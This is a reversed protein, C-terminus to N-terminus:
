FGCLSNEAYADDVFTICTEGDHGRNIVILFFNETDFWSVPGNIVEDLCKAMRSFLHFAQPKTPCIVLYKM